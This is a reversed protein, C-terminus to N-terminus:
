KMVELLRFRKEKSYPRGEVIKVRNGIKAKGEEDHVKYKKRRIILRGYVPHAHKTTVRVVITQKMKDSIVTGELTKAKGKNQKM